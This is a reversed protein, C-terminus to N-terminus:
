KAKKAKKKFYREQRARERTSMSTAAIYNLLDSKYPKKM